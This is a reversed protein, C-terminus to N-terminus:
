PRAGTAAAPPSRRAHELAALEVVDLRPDEAVERLAVALADAQGLRHDVVGVDQDEVLRRGAEVRDLDALDAGQDALQAVPVRDQERRVDHRLDLGDAAPHDDDDLPLIASSSWSSWRWSRPRSRARPGPAPRLRDALRQLRRGPDLPHAHDVLLAVDDSNSTWVSSPASRRSTRAWRTMWFPQASRRSSRRRDDSSSRNTWATRLGRERRGSRASDSVSAAQGHSM